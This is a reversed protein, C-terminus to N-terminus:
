DLQGNLIDGITRGLYLRDLESQTINPNIEKFKEIFQLNKTGKTIFHINRDPHDKLYEGMLKYLWSTKGGARANVLIKM